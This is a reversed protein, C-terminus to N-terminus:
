KFTVESTLDGGVQLAKLRDAAVAANTVAAAERDAALARLGVGAGALARAVGNADRFGGLRNEGHGFLIGSGRLGLLLLGGLLGCSGGGTARARGCRGRGDLRRRSRGSSRRRFLGHFENTTHRLLRRSLIKELFLQARDLDALRLTRLVDRGADGVHQGGEVVRDNRDGVRLPLDNGPGAGALAVEAAGALRGSVRGLNDGLVG